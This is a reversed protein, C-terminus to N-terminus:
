DFLKVIIYHPTGAVSSGDTISAARGISYMTGGAATLIIEGTSGISVASDVPIAVGVRVRGIAYGAVRIALGRETPTSDQLAIGAAYGGDVAPFLGQRTYGLFAFCSLIGKNVTSSANGASPLYMLIPNTVNTQNIVAAM